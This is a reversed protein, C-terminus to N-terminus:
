RAGSNYHKSFDPVFRVPFDEIEFERLIASQFDSWTIDPNHYVIAKGNAIEVRGRPFFNWAKGRIKSPLSETTLRWSCDHSFSNGKKSNYPPQGEAAVGYRDCEAAYILLKYDGDDDPIVWFLGKWVHEGREYFNMMDREAKM